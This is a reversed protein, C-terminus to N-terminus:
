HVAVLEIDFILNANPPIVGGAGTVGYALQPPVFLRRKGGVKMGAIGEDLGPIVRHAGLAFSFPTGGSSDFQQGKAGHLSLWGGYNVVVTRGQIAAPGAGVRTEIYKLGDPLETVSDPGQATVSLPSGQGEAIVLANQGYDITWPPLRSLFSQGLLPPGRMPSVHGVVNRITQSGVSVERLRVQPGSLVSGDAQFYSGRGILDGVTLTGTRLLTSMVDVPITVDAAGTDLVFPLTVAGNLRVSIQYTNGQSQLPIEEAAVAVSLMGLLGLAVWPIRM